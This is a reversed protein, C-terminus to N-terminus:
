RKSLRINGNSTTLDVLPGGSGIRGDLKTKSIQTTTVEYDTTIHGNSTSAHVDASVGSPLSVNISSNSTTAKIANNKWADLTLNISGNSTGLVLSRNEDLQAIGIDLSANSTHAEVSGRLGDAKIRGNSTKLDAAGVFKGVEIAANSTAVELDGEVGWIRVGGNSTKLRSNGTISEVRIGGNSTNISDLFVKKPVKVIYSAGCNCNREVPRITRIRVANSDASVDIKIEKMVEERSAYKTGKIDVTDNDWGLVEVPGNFSELSVRGGPALKYNYAFDEKYRDSNGWDASVIDCGSLFLFAAGLASLFWSKRM